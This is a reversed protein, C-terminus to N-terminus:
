RIGEGGGGAEVCGGGGGGGGGSGGGEVCAHIQLHMQLVTALTRM